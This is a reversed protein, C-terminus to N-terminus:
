FRSSFHWQSSNNELRRRNTSSRRTNEDFRVSGILQSALHECFWIWAVRFGFCFTCDWWGVMDEELARWNMWFTTLFLSTTTKLLDYQGYQLAVLASKEEGAKLSVFTTENSSSSIFFPAAIWLSNSVMVPCRVTGDTKTWPWCRPPLSSVWCAKWEPFRAEMNACVAYLIFCIAVCVISCLM